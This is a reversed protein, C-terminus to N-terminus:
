PSRNISLAALWLVARRDEPRVYRARNKEVQVPVLFIGAQCISNGVQGALRSAPDENFHRIKMETQSRSWGLIALTLGFAVRGFTVTFTEISFQIM